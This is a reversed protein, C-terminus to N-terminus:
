MSGFLASARGDVANVRASGYDPPYLHRELGAGLEARVFNLPEDAAAAHTLHVLGGVRPKVPRDRDLDEGLSQGRGNRRHLTELAFRSRRRDEVM